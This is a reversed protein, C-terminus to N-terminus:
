DVTPVTSLGGGALRSKQHFAVRVHLVCQLCLTVRFSHHLPTSYQFLLRVKGPLETAVTEKLRRLMFPRLAQHLRNTILLMEEETLLSGQPQGQGFWQQFDKSSTFLTPMLFHLLSWLEDLNNQM